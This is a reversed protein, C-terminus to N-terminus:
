LIIKAEYVSHLLFYLSLMGNNANAISKVLIASIETLGNLNKMADDHTSNLHINIDNIDRRIQELPQPNQRQSASIDDKQPLQTVKNHLNKLDLLIEKVNSKQGDLAIFLCYHIRLRTLVISYIDAKM